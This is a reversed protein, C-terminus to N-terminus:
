PNQSGAYHQAIWQSDSNPAPVAATGTMANAFNITASNLWKHSEAHGDCFNFVASTVHFAAPGDNADQFNSGLFGNAQTGAITMQWSGVNEGRSDSAEIWIFRDSPHIVQSRKVLCSASTHGEGNLNASGSYSDYCFPGGTTPTFASLNHKDAPCHMINPNPAYRYLPGDIGPDPKVYGQQIGAVWGAENATNPTPTQQGNRIDTRWPAGWPTVKLNGKTQASGDSNQFYTSLSVMRDSSEDAYMIWALALQKVNTLCAATAAKQKAKALVPLLMAALVAIIAIVVLLEILTFAKARLLKPSGPNCGSEHAPRKLPSNASVPTRSAFITFQM